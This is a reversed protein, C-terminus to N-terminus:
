IRQVGHANGEYHDGLGGHHHTIDGQGLLGARGEVLATLGHAAPLTTVGISCNPEGTHPHDAIQPLPVVISRRGCRTLSQGPFFARDAM